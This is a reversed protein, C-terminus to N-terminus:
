DGNNAGKEVLSYYETQAIEFTNWRAKCRVCEVRRFVDGGWRRSNVVLCKSGGCNPCRRAAM